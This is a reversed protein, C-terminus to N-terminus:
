QLPLAPTSAFLDAPTSPVASAPALPPAPRAPKFDVSADVKQDVGSVPDAGMMHVEVRVLRGGPVSLFADVESHATKLFAKEQAGQVPMSQLQETQDPGPVVKYEHTFGSALRTLTYASTRSSLLVTERLLDLSVAPYLATAATAPVTKWVGQAGRVYLQADVIRVQFDEHQSGSAASVRYTM